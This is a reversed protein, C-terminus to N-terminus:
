TNLSNEAIELYLARYAAVLDDLRFSRNLGSPNPLLWVRAGGFLANQHGWALQRQGSLTAYASKGLFALYRPRYLEIKQRLATAAALFEQQHLQDARATPRAVATTLGCRYALLDHDNEPQLRRPTFGARHLVPWFRNGQGAFHHGSAAAKLGPN